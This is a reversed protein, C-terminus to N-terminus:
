APRRERRSDLVTQLVVAASASDLTGDRKGRLAPQMAVAQASSLREDVERVPVTLSARLEALLEAVAGAQYGREGRLTLPLGIIVEDVGEEQVLRAIARVAEHKSRAPVAPRPHAYLGLADSM